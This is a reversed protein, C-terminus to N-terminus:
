NTLTLTELFNDNCETSKIRIKYKRKYIFFNIKPSLAFLSIFHEWLNRGRGWKLKNGAM